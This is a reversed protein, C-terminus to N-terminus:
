ITWLREPGNIKITTVSHIQNAVVKPIITVLPGVDPYIQIIIYFEIWSERLIHYMKAALAM